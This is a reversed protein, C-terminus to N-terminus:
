SYYDMIELYLDSYNIFQLFFVSIPTFHTFKDGNPIFIWTLRTLAM